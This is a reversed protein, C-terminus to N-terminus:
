EVWADACVRRSRMRLAAAGILGLLGPLVEQAAGTPVAPSLDFLYISGSGSFPNADAHEAVVVQDNSISLAYGFSYGAYDSALLRAEETWGSAGDRFLYASAPPISSGDDVRGGVVALDGRMAVSKGFDTYTGSEAPAITGVEVWGSGGFHFEYVAGPQTGLEGPSGVLLIDGAIAVSTGFRKDAGADSALLKGDESWV